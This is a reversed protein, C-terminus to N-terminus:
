RVKLGVKDLKRGREFGDMDREVVLLSIGRAGVARNTRAVVIVLDALLGSSIFTKTGNLVYHDGHRIATTTIGQLDSGANPESMAIALIMERLVGRAAVAAEAGCQRALVHRTLFQQVTERFALHEPDFIERKVIRSQISLDPRRRHV